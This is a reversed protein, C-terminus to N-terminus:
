IYILKKRILFSKLINKDYLITYM